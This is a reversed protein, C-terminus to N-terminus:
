RPRAGCDPIPLREAILAAIAKERAARVEPTGGNARGAEILGRLQDLGRNSREFGVRLDLCRQYNVLAILHANKRIATQEVEIRYTLVTFVVTLLLVIPMVHLLRSDHIWRRM